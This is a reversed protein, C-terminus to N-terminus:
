LVNYIKNKTLTKTPIRCLYYKKNIEVNNNVIIDDHIKSILENTKILAKKMSLCTLFMLSLCEEVKVKHGYNSTYKGPFRFYDKFGIKLLDNYSNKTVNQMTYLINNNRAFSHFIEKVIETDDIRISINSINESSCSNTKGIKFSLIQSLKENEIKYYSYYGDNYDKYIYQGKLKKYFTIM